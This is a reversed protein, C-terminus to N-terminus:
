PSRVLLLGLNHLFRGVRGGLLGTRWLGVDVGEEFFCVTVALQTLILFDLLDFNRCWSAFVNLREADLSSADGEAM